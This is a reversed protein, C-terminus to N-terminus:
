PAHGVPAWSPDVVVVVGQCAPDVGLPHGVGLSEPRAAVWSRGQRSQDLGVHHRGAAAHDGAQCSALHAVEHSAHGGALVQAGQDTHHCCAGLAVCPSHHGVRGEHLAPARGQGRVEERGAVM